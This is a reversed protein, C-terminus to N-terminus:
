IFIVWFLLYLIKKKNVKTAITEDIFESIFKIIYKLTLLKDIILKVLKILVKLGIISENIRVKHM